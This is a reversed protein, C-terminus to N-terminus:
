LIGWDLHRDGPGGGGRPDAAPLLHKPLLAIGDQGPRVPPRLLLLLLLGRWPQRGGRLPDEHLRSNQPLLPDLIICPPWTPSKM